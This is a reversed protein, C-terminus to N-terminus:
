TKRTWFGRLRHGREESYEAGETCLTHLIWKLADIEDKSSIRYKACLGKLTVPDTLDDWIQPLIIGVLSILRRAKKGPPRVRPKDSYYLVCSNLRDQVITIAESCDM